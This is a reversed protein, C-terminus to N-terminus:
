LVVATGRAAGSVINRNKPKAHLRLTANSPAKHTFKDSGRLDINPYRFQENCINIADCEFERKCMVSQIAVQLSTM